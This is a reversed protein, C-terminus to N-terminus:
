SVLCDARDGHPAPRPTVSPFPVGENPGAGIKTLGSAVPPQKPDAGAAIMGGSVLEKREPWLFQFHVISRGTGSPIYIPLSLRFVRDAIQPGVERGTRGWFVPDGRFWANLAATDDHRGDGWLALGVGCKSSEAAWAPSLAAAMALLMALWLAALRLMGFIASFQETRRNM